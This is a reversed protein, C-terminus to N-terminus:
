QERITIISNYPLLITTGTFETLELYDSEALVIAGTLVGATTTIEVEQNLLQEAIEKFASVQCEQLIACITEKFFSSAIVEEVATKTNNRILAAIEPGQLVGQFFQNLQQKFVKALKCWYARIFCM